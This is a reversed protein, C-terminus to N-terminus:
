LLRTPTWLAVGETAGRLARFVRNCFFILFPKPFGILPNGL